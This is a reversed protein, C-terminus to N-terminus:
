SKLAFDLAYENWHPLDYTYYRCRGATVVAACLIWITIHIELHKSIRTHKRYFYYRFKWSAISRSHTLCHTISPSFAAVLCLLFLCEVDSRRATAIIRKQLGIAFLTSVKREILVLTLCRIIVRFIISFQIQRFTLCTCLTCLARNEELIWSRGIALSLRKLNVSNM